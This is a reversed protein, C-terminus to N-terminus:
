ASAPYSCHTGQVGQLSTVAYRCNKVATTYQYSAVLRTRGGNYYIYLVSQVELVTPIALFM